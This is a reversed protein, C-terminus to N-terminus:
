NDKIDKYDEFSIRGFDKQTRIRTSTKEEQHDYNSTKIEHLFWNEKEKFYNFNIEFQDSNSGGYNSYFIIKDNQIIVDEYPNRNGSGSCMSCDVIEDNTTIVKMEPYNITELLVAKRIRTDEDGTIESNTFDSEMVVVFDDIGDANIDGATWDLIHYSEFEQGLLYTLVSLTDKDSVVLSSLKKVDVVWTEYGVADDEGALYVTDIKWRVEVIDGRSFNYHDRDELYLFEFYADDKLFFFTYTDLKEWEGAAEFTDKYVKELHLPQDSRLDHYFTTDKKIEKKNNQSFSLTTKQQNTVQISEKKASQEVVSNCSFLIATLFLIYHLNIKQLTM